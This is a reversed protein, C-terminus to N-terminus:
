FSFNLLDVRDLLETTSDGKVDVHPDRISGMCAALKSGRFTQEVVSKVTALEGTIRISNKGWMAGKVLQCSYKGDRDTKVHSKVTTVYLERAQKMQDHTLSEFFLITFHRKGDASVPVMLACRRKVDTTKQESM